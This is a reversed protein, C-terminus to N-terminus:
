FFFSIGGWFFLVFCTDSILLHIIEMIGSIISSPLVVSEFIDIQTQPNPKRNLSHTRELVYWLFTKQFFSPILWRYHLHEAVMTWLNLFKAFNLRTAKASTTLLIRSFKTKSSWWSNGQQNINNLSFPVKIQKLLLITSAPLLTSQVFFFVVQIGDIM